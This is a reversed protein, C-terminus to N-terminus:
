IAQEEASDEALVDTGEPMGRGNFPVFDRIELELGDDLPEAQEEGVVPDPRLPFEWVESRFGSILSYATLDAVFRAEVLAGPTAIPFFSQLEFLIWPGEDPRRGLWRKRIWDHQWLYRRWLKQYIEVFGHAYEL